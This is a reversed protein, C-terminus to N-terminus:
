PKTKRKRAKPRRADRKADRVPVGRERCLPCYRRQSIRPRRPTEYPMGCGSCFAFGGRGIIAYALQMALVSFLASGVLTVTVAKHGVPWTLSPRVDGWALWRNVARSICIRADTARPVKQTYRLEAIQQWVSLDSRKGDKLRDTVELLARAEGAFHRWAALPEWADANPMSEHGHSGLLRCRPASPGPSNPDEGFSWLAIGAAEATATMVDKPQQWRHSFPLGHENCIGLVGWKRAYARVHEGSGDALALFDLLVRPGPRRVHSEPSAAWWLREGDLEVKGPIALRGDLPRELEGNATLASDPVATWPDSVSM